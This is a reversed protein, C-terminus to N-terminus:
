PTDAKLLQERALMVDTLPNQRARHIEQADFLRVQKNLAEPLYRKMVWNMVQAVEEDTLGSGMVGPVRVLFERGGAKEFFRPMDHLDPVQANAHGRGDMGHCGACHLVYLSQPNAVVAKSPAHARMPAMTGLVSVQRVGVVEATARQAHVPWAWAACCVWLVRLLCRWPLCTGLAQM